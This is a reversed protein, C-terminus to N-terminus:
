SKVILRGTYDIRNLFVCLNHEQIFEDVAKKSGKWHGYDDIIIIGGKTVKKFLIDLEIKTSEYWDTDLRLISISNPQNEKIVLTDEVKGQIYNIKSEPYGSLRMTKKVEDIESYAWVWSTTKDERELRESAKEGNIDLDFKTPESMGKFTDYLWLQREKDNLDNLIKGVVLSSGGKWVGCEVYDGSIKNKVIYKVADILVKIREPSTMTYPKVLQVIKLDEDSFDSYNNTKKQSEPAEKFILKMVRKLKDFYKNLSFAM